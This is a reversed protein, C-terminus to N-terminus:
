AGAALALATAVRAVEDPGGALAGVTVRVHGSGGTDDAAEGARFPRGPAVRIGAAALRVLATAEDAVPVWLNIGDGPQVEVGREALATTLARQRAYYTRRAQAVAALAEGDDLLDALVHQLLRSTWGPGLMRRAVVRDLVAAPGGVAAIRLDPGHSKSYSRVHVVRDPLHSGLSVDASSAIEGSHDDEVITLGAGPTAALHKRVVAALERARTSTMSVGTPNHARPQLVVVEAGTRLAAALADPRLGQRDLPVPVRELGLQDCLDFIPPFSPDEVVVRDGFGALQELTRSMADVAGDVVTVRQPTFPWSARLLRELPEVVPAGLYSGTGAAPTAAAVRALARGLPPLLAPDPTGASLDIAPGPRRTPALSASPPGSPAGPADPDVRPQGASAPGPMGGGVGGVGVGPLAAGADARGGAALDRYRPPLWSAPEPLVVTGARGRSAVLGVAALAQWAGSVTAPSVGLDAALRRVTPLRDGPRLDGSRVLRSVAAAIGRPSRDEVHQAVDM